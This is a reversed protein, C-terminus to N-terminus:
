TTDLNNFAIHIDRECHCGPCSGSLSAGAGAPPSDAPLVFVLLSGGMQMHRSVIGRKIPLFNDRTLLM